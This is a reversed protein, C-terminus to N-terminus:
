LIFCYIYTCCQTFVNQPGSCTPSEPAVNHSYIILAPCTYSYLILLHASSAVLDPYSGFAPNLLLM